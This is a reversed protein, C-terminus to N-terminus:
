GPTANYLAFSRRLLMATNEGGVGVAVFQGPRASRAIGPAVVTFQFYDGVKQVSFIECKEQVPTSM